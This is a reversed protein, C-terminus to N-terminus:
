RVVGRMQGEVKDALPHIETGRAAERIISFHNGVMHFFHGRVSGDARCASCGFGTIRSAAGRRGCPRNYELRGPRPMAM